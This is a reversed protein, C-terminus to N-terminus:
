LRLSSDAQSLPAQRSSRGTPVVIAARIAAKDPIARAQWRVLRLGAAQLAKDKKADAVKRHAYEHSSDDLEIVAVVTADKNCIVFDASMQSIRNRWTQSGRGRKFDLFSPLSVQALVIYEPLAEVLRFYLVQESDSLPKKAYYPWEEEFPEGRKRKALYYFIVMLPVFVILVVISMMQVAEVIPQMVLSVGDVTATTQAFAIGIGAVVVVILVRLM